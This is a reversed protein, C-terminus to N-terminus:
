YRLKFHVMIVKTMLGGIGLKDALQFFHGFRSHPPSHSVISEYDGSRVVLSTLFNECDFIFLQKCGATSTLYKALTMKKHREIMKSDLSSTAM